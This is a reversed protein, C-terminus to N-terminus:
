RPTEKPDLVPLVQRLGADTMLITYHNVDDAEHIRMGPLREHWEAVVAPDYLSPGDLLGRPARVLDIPLLLSALAEAYGASGDLELANVSVAEADASSRLEPADGVLDYAVYDAIAPNWWPGIAPHRRWFAEYEEPSAFRMRLREIAPGLVVAPVDEPAVGEPPPLPLGGDILVLREVRDPHREAFRVAVFAGMSHGAVVVRDLSLADLVRALDDAHQVLGFPGPLGSSRGRGRLDPAILRRHPLRDATLLWARHSATIGHVALIPMGEADPHWVGGALDGGAVPVTFPAYGARTSM